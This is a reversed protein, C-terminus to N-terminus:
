LMKGQTAQAYLRDRQVQGALWFAIGTADAADLNPVFIKHQELIEKGRKKLWDGSNKTGKPARSMGMFGKRWDDARVIRRHIGRDHLRFLFIAQLGLALTIWQRNTTNQPKSGGVMDGSPVFKVGGWVVDEIAAEYIPDPSRAEEDLTAVLWKDFNSFVEPNSTGSKGLAISGCRARSVQQTDMICWGTNTKSPDIAFLKM